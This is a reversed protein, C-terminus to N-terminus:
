VGMLTPAAATGRRIKIKIRSKIAIKEESGGDRRQESRNAGIRELFFRKEKLKGTERM